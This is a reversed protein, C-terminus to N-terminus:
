TEPNNETGIYTFKLFFGNREDSLPAVFIGQPNQPHLHYLWIPM